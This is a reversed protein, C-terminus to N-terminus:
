ARKHIEVQVTVTDGEWADETTRVSKKLAILFTQDQLYPLLSTQWSTTGITITARLLGKGYQDRIPTFHKRPVYVFYWPTNGPWKWVKASFSFKKM